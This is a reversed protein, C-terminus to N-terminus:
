RDTQVTRSPVFRTGQVNPAFAGGSSVGLASNANKCFLHRNQFKTQGLYNLIIITGYTVVNEDGNVTVKNFVNKKKQKLSM